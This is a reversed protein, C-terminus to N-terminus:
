IKDTDSKISGLKTISKNISKFQKSITKLLMIYQIVVWSGITDPSVRVFSIMYSRNHYYSVMEMLSALTFFNVMFILYSYCNNKEIKYSACKKLKGDVSELRNFVGIILKQRIIYIIQIFEVCLIAIFKLKARGASTLISDSQVHTHSSDILVYLNTLGIFLFFITIVHNLYHFEAYLLKIITVNKIKWFYKRLM